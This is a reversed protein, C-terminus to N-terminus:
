LSRLYAVLDDVEEPTLDSTHGHMEGGTCAPDGRLRDRLTPACGDHMYPARYAIGTLVPVQFRGGTGVDLTAGTTHSPGWHCFSCDAEPSEFVARGRDVAAPEEHPRPPADIAGLWLSLATVETAELTHGSMRRVFVERLLAPLSAVDGEWHFPVTRLIRGRVTQTRVRPHGGFQWAHGDDGGEPHCSACALGSLTVTHFLDHGEDTSPAGLVLRVAGGPSLRTLSAPARQLVLLSGDPAYAVSVIRSGLSHDTDELAISAGSLRDTAVTFLGVSACHSPPAASGLAALSGDPSVALDVGLAVPLSASPALSGSPGEADVFSVSTEVLVPRCPPPGVITSAAGYPGLAGSPREAPPPDPISAARARQHLLWAGGEAPLLRWAVHPEMAATAGPMAAGLPDSREVTAPMWRAVISGDAAVALVEASRFRSVLVRDGYVVVDRLDDALALTRSPPGGAAPLTVLLGEACAVLLADDAERWAIGRPAACVSRITLEDAGPELTAVAGTRRLVVHVRAAGDDVLRGPESGSPLAFTRGHGVRGDSGLEVGYLREADPDSVVVRGDRTVLLGGAGVPPDVRRLAPDPLSTRGADTRSPPGVDASSRPRAPAEDPAGACGTGALALALCSAVALVHLPSM